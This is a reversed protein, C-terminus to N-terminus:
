TQSEVLLNVMAETGRQSLDALRQMGLGLRARDKHLEFHLSFPLRERGRLDRREGQHDVFQGRVRYLMGELHSRGSM